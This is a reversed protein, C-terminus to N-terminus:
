SGHSARWTAALTCDALGVKHAEADLAQAKPESALTSIRVLFDHAEKTELHAALWNAVIVMQGGPDADAKSLKVVDCLKTIDNAYQPTVDAARTPPPLSRAPPKAADDHNGQCGVTAVLSIWFM